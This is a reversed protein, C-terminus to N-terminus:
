EHHGIKVSFDAELPVGIWESIAQLQAERSDPNDIDIFMVDDLARNLFEEMKAWASEFNLMPKGRRRWSDEVLVRERRAIIVPGTWNDIIVAEPQYDFHVQIFDGDTPRAAGARRLGAGELVQRM